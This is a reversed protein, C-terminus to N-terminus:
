NPCAITKSTRKDLAIESSRPNVLHHNVGYFRSENDRIERHVAFCSRPKLFHVMTPLFVDSIISLHAFTPKEPFLTLLTLGSSTRM